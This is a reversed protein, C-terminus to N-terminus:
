DNEPAHGALAEKKGDEVIGIRLEGMKTYRLTDGFHMADMGQAVTYILNERGFREGMMDESTIGNMVSLLVTDPGVAYKMTEFASEIAGYKVALIVLDYPKAEEARAIPLKKEEGQIEFTKKLYKYYFPYVKADAIIYM